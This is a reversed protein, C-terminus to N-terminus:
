GSQSACLSRAITAGASSRNVFRSLRGLDSFDVEWAPKGHKPDSARNRLNPTRYSFPHDNATGSADRRRNRLRFSVNIRRRM